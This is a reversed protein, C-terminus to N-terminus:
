KHARHFVEHLDCAATCVCFDHENWYYSKSMVELEYVDGELTTFVGDRDISNNKFLDAFTLRLGFEFSSLEM